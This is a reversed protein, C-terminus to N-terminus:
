KIEEHDHFRVGKWYFYIDNRRYLGDYSIFRMKVVPFNLIAAAERVGRFLLSNDPIQFSYFMGEEREKLIKSAEAMLDLKKTLEERTM